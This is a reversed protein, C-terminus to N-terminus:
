RGGRSTPRRTPKRTVTSTPRKTPSRRTPARSTPRRTPSASSPRRTPTASTPTASTPSSSAPALAPTSTTPMSTAVTPSGSPARPSATVHVVPPDTTVPPANTTVTPRLAAAALSSVNWTMGGACALAKVDVCSTGSCVKGVGCPTGDPWLTRPSTWMWCSGAGAADDNCTMDSGCDSPDVFGTTAGSCPVLWTGADGNTLCFDVASNCTGCGCTGNLGQSTTVCPTGPPMVVDAGCTFAEGDCTDTVDCPGSSARCTTGASKARCTDADCCNSTTPTCLAGAKLRCMAGDCCADYGECVGRPCDCEESGEVLGDGCVTSTSTSTGNVTLGGVWESGDAMEVCAPLSPTNYESGSGPAYFLRFWEATCPSWGVKSAGSLM